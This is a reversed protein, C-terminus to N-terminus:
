QLWCKVPVLNRLVDSGTQCLMKRVNSRIVHMWGFLWYCSTELIRASSVEMSEVSSRMLNFVKVLMSVSEYWQLSRGHCCM